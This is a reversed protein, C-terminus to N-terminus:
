PKPKHKHWNVESNEDDSDMGDDRDNDDEEINLVRMIEEFASMTFEAKGGVKITGDENLVQDTYIIIDDKDGITCIIIYEQNVIKCALM